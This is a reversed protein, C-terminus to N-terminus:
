KTFLKVFKMALEFNKPEVRLVLIKEPGIINLDKFFESNTVDIGYLKPETDAYKKVERPKDGSITPEEWEEVARLKLYDSKSVDIDNDKAIDDLAMFAGNIAYNEFAYKNVLYVDIDSAAIMVLAKQWYSYSQADELSTSLVASDVAVVKLEPLNEVIKQKFGEQVDYNVEGLLGITTDPEVRTVISHIFIAAIIVAIIGIIIHVKYYHFFNDAKKRDIGIKEFAKDTYTEKKEVVPEEVEYGMIIRYADTSKQFETEAEQDLNGEMKLIKYKKLIVDYKKEIEEKSSAKTVGLIKRADQLTYKM